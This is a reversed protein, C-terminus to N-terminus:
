DETLVDPWTEPKTVKVLKFPDDFVNGDKLARKVYTRVNKMHNETTSPLNDKNSKLWARFNELLKPTLASFPLHDAEDTGVKKKSRALEWAWFEKMNNLTSIHGNKTGNEIKKRKARETADNKFFTFFDKRSTYSSYERVLQGVTLTKRSLRYETFIDNIKGTEADIMLQYDVADQDGKFRPLVKGADRDFFDKPWSLKLAIRDFSGDVSVHIYLPCTGDKKVYDVKIIVKKSFNQTTNQLTGM